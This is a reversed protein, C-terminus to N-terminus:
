IFVYNLAITLDVVGLNSSLHGGNKEVVDTILARIEGGLAYLEDESCESLKKRNQDLEQLVSM